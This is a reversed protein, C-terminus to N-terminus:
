PLTNEVRSCSLAGGGGSLTAARIGYITTQPMELALLFVFFLKVGKEDNQCVALDLDGQFFQVEFEALFM